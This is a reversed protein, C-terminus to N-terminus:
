RLSAPLLLVEPVGRIGLIDAHREAWTTFAARLPHGADLPERVMELGRELHKRARHGDFRAESEDLEAYLAMSMLHATAFGTTSIEPLSAADRRIPVFACFKSPAFCRTHPDYVFYQVTPRRKRKWLTRGAATTVEHNCVRANMLVEGIDAAFHIRYRPMESVADVISLVRAIENDVPLRRKRLQATTMANLTSIEAPMVQPLLLTQFASMGVHRMMLVAASGLSRRGVAVHSSMMSVFADGPRQPLFGHAVAFKVHNAVPDARSIEFEIWIRRDGQTASLCLDAHPNVGIAAAIEPM